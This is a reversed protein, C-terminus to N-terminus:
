LSSPALRCLDRILPVQRTWWWHCRKDDERPRSVFRIVSFINLVYVMQGEPHCWSNCHCLLRPSRHCICRKLPVSPFIWNTTLIDSDCCWPVNLSPLWAWSKRFVFLLRNFVTKEASLAVGWSVARAFSSLTHCRWVWRHRQCVWFETLLKQAQKGCFHVIWPSATNLVTSCQILGNLLLLDVTM